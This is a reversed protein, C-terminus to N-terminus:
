ARRMASFAESEIAALKDRRQDALLNRKHAIEQELADLVAMEDGFWKEVRPTKAEVIGYFAAHQKEELTM